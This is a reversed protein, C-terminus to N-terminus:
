QSRSAKDSCVKNGSKSICTKQLQSNKTCDSVGAQIDMLDIYFTMWNKMSKCLNGYNESPYFRM